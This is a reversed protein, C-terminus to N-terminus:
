SRGSPPPTKLLASVRQRTVGFLEAIREMTMGEDHLARAEARRFRGGATLLRELNQNLVDVILPSSQASVMETYRKGAMRERRILAARELAIRNGESNAQLAAVLEDLAELVEDRPKGM